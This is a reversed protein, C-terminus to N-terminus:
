AGVVSRLEDVDLNWAVRYREDIWEHRDDSPDLRIMPRRSELKPDLDIPLELAHSLSAVSDRVDDPVRM